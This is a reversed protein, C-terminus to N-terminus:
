TSSSIDAPKVVAKGIFLYKKRDDIRQCLVRTRQLSIKRYTKEKWVFEAGDPL